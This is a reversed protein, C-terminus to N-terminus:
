PTINVTYYQLVDLKRPLVESLLKNQHSGRFIRDVEWRLDLGMLADGDPEVPLSAM